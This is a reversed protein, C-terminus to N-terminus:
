DKRGAVGAHENLRSDGDVLIRMTAAAMKPSVGFLPGPDAQPRMASISNGVLRRLFRVHPKEPKLRRIIKQLPITVSIDIHGRFSADEEIGVRPAVVAGDVTATERINIAETASIDGEVKGLVTVEKAHVQAEIRGNPGITLVNRDLDIKGSVQGEITLDATASVQGKVVVSQGITDMNREM